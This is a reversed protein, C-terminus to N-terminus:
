AVRTMVGAAEKAWRSTEEGMIVPVPAPMVPLGDWRGLVSGHEMMLHRTYFLSEPGYQLTSEAHITTRMEEQIEGPRVQRFQFLASGACEISRLWRAWIWTQEENFRQPNRLHSISEPLRHREIM